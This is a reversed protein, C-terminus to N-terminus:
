DHVCVFDWCFWRVLCFCVLLGLRLWVVLGVTQRVFLCLLFGRCRVSYLDGPVVRSPHLCARLDVPCGRM